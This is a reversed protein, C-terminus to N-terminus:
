NKKDRERPLSLRWVVKRERNKEKKTKKKKETRERKEALEFKKKKKNMKKEVLSAEIFYKYFNLLKNLQIKRILM